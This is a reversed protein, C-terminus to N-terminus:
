GGEYQRRLEPTIEVKRVKSAAGKSGQRQELAQKYDAAAGLRWRWFEAKRKDKPWRGGPKIEGRKNVHVM